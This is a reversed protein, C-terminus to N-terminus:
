ENKVESANYYICKTQVIQLKSLWYDKFYTQGHFIDKTSLHWAIKRVLLDAKNKM